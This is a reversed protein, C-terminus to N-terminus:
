GKMLVYNFLLWDRRSGTDVDLRDRVCKIAHCGTTHDKNFVAAASEFTMGYKERLAEMALQRPWSIYEPRRRSMLEDPTIGFVTCAALKVRAIAMRRDNAGMVRGRMRKRRRRLMRLRLIM